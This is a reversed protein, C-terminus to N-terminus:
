FDEGVFMKRVFNGMGLGIFFGVMAGFLKMFESQTGLEGAGIYGMYATFFAFGITLGYALILMLVVIFGIIAVIGWFM